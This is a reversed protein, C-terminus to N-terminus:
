AQKKAKIDLRAQVAAPSQGGLIKQLFAVASNLIPNNIASSLDGLLASLGAAGVGASLYALLGHLSFGQSGIMLCIGALLALAVPAISNFKAGLKAWLPSLASVKFSSDLLLLLLALKFGLNLGKFGPLAAAIESFFDQLSLSAQGAAAQAQAVSGPVATDAFVSAVGFIMFAFILIGLIKKM